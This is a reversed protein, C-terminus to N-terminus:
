DERKYLKNAVGLIFSTCTLGAFIYMIIQCIKEVHADDNYMKQYKECEAVNAATKHSDTCYYGMNMSSIEKTVGYSSQVMFTAIIAAGFVASVLLYITFDVKSLCCKPNISQVPRNNLLGHAIGEDSPMTPINIAVTNSTTPNIPSYSM